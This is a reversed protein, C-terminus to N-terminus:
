YYGVLSTATTATANVRKFQCPLISGQPVGVHTIVENNWTVLTVDGGVGVYLSRGRKGIPFVTDVTDSPTISVAGEAPDSNFSM